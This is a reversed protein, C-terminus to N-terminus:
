PPVEWYNMVREKFEEPDLGDLGKERLHKEAAEMLLDTQGKPMTYGNSGQDCRYERLSMNIAMSNSLGQQLQIGKLEMLKGNVMKETINEATHHTRLQEMAVMVQNPHPGMHRHEGNGSGKVQYSMRLGCKVCAQWTAYQNTRSKLDHNKNCGGTQPRGPCMATSTSGDRIRQRLHFIKQALSQRIHSQTLQKSMMMVSPKGFHPGEDDAHVVTTSAHFVDEWKGDMATLDGKLDVSVHASPLPQMKVAMWQSGSAKDNYIFLNQDYAM